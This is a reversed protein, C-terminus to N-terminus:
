YFRTKDIVILVMASYGFVTDLLNINQIFIFVIIDLIGGIIDQLHDLLVHIIDWEIL